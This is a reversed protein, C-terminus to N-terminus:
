CQRGRDSAGQAKSAAFPFAPPQKRIRSLSWPKIMAARRLTKSLESPACVRDSPAVAPDPGTFPKTLVRFVPLSPLHRSHIM